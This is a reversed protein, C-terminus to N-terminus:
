DHLLNKYFPRFDAPIFKTLELLHNFKERKIKKPEQYLQPITITDEQKKVRRPLQVWNDKYNTKYDISGDVKYALCRIDTVKPDQTTNGPRISTYNNLVSYKKFFDFSIYHVKYPDKLKASKCLQVFWGPVYVERNKLKREIFVHISDCEMQTHGKELYYQFIALKKNKAFTLLANSLTVNRNQYGFGDSFIIVTKTDPTCNQDIYDLIISTFDSSNVGGAGEHWIYCDAQGTVM